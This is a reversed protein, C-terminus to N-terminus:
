FSYIYVDLPCSKIAQSYRGSSAAKELFSIKPDRKHLGIGHHQDIWEVFLKYITTKRGDEIGPVNMAVAELLEQTRMDRTLYYLLREREFVNTGISVVRLGGLLRELCAISSNTDFIGRRTMDFANLIEPCLKTSEILFNIINESLNHLFRVKSFDYLEQGLARLSAIFVMFQLM